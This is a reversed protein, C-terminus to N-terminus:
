GEASGCKGPGRWNRRLFELDTQAAQFLIAPQDKSSGTPETFELSFTGAFGSESLAALCECARIPDNGLSLFRASDSQSRMQVHAHTIRPGLLRGWYVIREPSLLFPHLIVEFPPREWESAFELVVEPEELWTGPHCECLLRPPSPQTTANDDGLLALLEDITQKALAAGARDPGVNFKIKQANLRQVCEVVERIEEPTSAALNLYTNFIRVPLPGTELRRREDADAKRYHNEFLEWGNFGAAAARESWESVRVSPPRGPKWRNPELLISALYIKVWAKLFGYGNRNAAFVALLIAASQAKQAEKRDHDTQTQGIRAPRGGRKRRERPTLAGRGCRPASM